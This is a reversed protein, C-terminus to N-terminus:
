DNWINIHNEQRKKGKNGFLVRYLTILILPMLFYNINLHNPKSTIYPFPLGEDNDQYVNLSGLYVQEEVQNVPLQISGMAIEISDDLIGLLSFKLSFSIDIGFKIENLFLDISTVDKKPVLYYNKADFNNWYLQYNGEEVNTPAFNAMVAMQLDVVLSSSINLSPFPGIEPMIEINFLPYEYTFKEFLGRTSTLLFKIKKDFKPVTFESKLYFSSRGTILSLVINDGDSSISTPTNLTILSKISAGLQVNYTGSEFIGTEAQKNILYAFHPSTSEVNISKIETLLGYAGKLHVLAITIDNRGSHIAESIDYSSVKANEDLSNYGGGVIIENVFVIFGQATLISLDVFQLQNEDLSFSTRFVRIDEGILGKYDVWVWKTSNDFGFNHPLFNEDNNIELDTRVNDWSSSDTSSLWWDGGIETTALGKWNENSQLIVESREYKTDIQKHVDLVERESINVNFYIFAINDGNTNKVEINYEGKETITEDFDILIEDTSIFKDHKIQGVFELGNWDSLDEGDFIIENIYFISNLQQETRDKPWRNIDLKPESIKIFFNGKENDGYKTVEFGVLEVQVDTIGSAKVRVPIIIASLLVFLIIYYVPKRGWKM